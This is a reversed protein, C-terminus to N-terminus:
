LVLLGGSAGVAEVGVGRSLWQGGVVQIVRSDFVKLKSEQIFLVEPKLRLVVGKVMRRKVGSGLGRVNWSLILM